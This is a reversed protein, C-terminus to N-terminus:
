NYLEYGVDFRFNKLENEKIRVFTGDEQKRLLFMHLNVDHRKDITKGDICFEAFEKLSFRLGGRRTTGVGLSSVFEVYIKEDPDNIEVHKPAFRSWEIRNTFFIYPSFGNAVSRNEFVKEM